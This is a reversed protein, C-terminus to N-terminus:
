ESMYWFRNCIESIVQMHGSFMLNLPWIVANECM